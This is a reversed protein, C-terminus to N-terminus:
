SDMGGQPVIYLAIEPEILIKVPLYISLSGAKKRYKLLDIMSSPM